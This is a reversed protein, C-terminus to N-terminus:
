DEATEAVKNQHDRLVRLPLALSSERARRAVNWGVVEGKASILLGGCEAPQLPIDHQLVGQFGTRRVSIAGARGDLYELRDFVAAPDHGALLAARTAQGSKLFDVMMWDGPQYLLLQQGLTALNPTSRGDLGTLIDGASIGATAAPGNPAVDQVRLGLVGSVEVLRAGLRATEPPEVHDTRTIVGPGSIRSTGQESSLGVVAFVIEGVELTTMPLPQCAPLTQWQPCTLLALDFTSDDHVRQLQRVTGNCFRAYIPSGPKLGSLKAAILRNDIRTGLGLMEAGSPAACLEVTSQSAKILAQPSPQLRPSESWLPTAAIQPAPQAIGAQELLGQLAARGVHLNSEPGAGIQRHVGVLQGLRNVLPGGSDGVTLMCSSRLISSSFARITGLRVAPELVATERAPFGLALLPENLSVDRPSISLWACDFDTAKATASQRPQRLKLLAVDSESDRALFSAVASTGDALRVRVEPANEPIGHSATLLHGEPTVFVGSCLNGDAAAIRVTAQQLYKLGPGNIQGSVPICLLSFLVATLLRSCHRTRRRIRRRIM